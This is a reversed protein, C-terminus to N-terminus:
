ILCGDHLLTVVSELFTGKKDHHDSGGWVDLKQETLVNLFQLGSWPSSAFCTKTCSATTHLNWGEYIQSRM